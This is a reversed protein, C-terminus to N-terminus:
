FQFYIFSSGSDQAWVLLLIMAAWVLGLGWWRMRHAVELVSTGRMLWHTLLMVPIVVAVKILALSTLLAKGDSVQGFMSQLMHWAKNFTGSRFFVWAINVLMYTFLAYAVGSWGSGTHTEAGGRRERFFREVWLYLGHLGGWVVFTWNAGHWLGGLLMTVM